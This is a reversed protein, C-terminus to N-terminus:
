ARYLRFGPPNATFVVNPLFNRNEDGECTLNTGWGPYSISGAKPSFRPGRVCKM